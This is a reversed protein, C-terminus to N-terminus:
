WTIRTGIAFVYDPEIGNRVERIVPLQLSAEVIMRELALQFGPAANVVHSNDTLYSGNIEFVSNLQWFRDDLNQGTLQVYTYAADYRMEDHKFVGEGTNFNWFWDLDLGWELSQYTWVTGVFPDWSDSSFNKDFTPIELGGFVSWRTTEGPQDDERLRYKAFFRMDAVGFDDVETLAGPPTSPRVTGDRKALPVVGFVTLDERVGYALVQPNVLVNIDREVSGPSSHSQLFRLQTRYITQGEGPAIATDTNIGTNGSLRRRVGYLELPTRRAAGGDDLGPM